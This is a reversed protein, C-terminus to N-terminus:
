KLLTNDLHMAKFINSLTETSKVKSNLHDAQKLSYGGSEHISRNMDALAENDGGRFKALETVSETLGQSMLVQLEPFTLTASQSEGTVQGTLMDRHKTDKAVSLKKVLVQVQRRLMLDLVMYKKPTLYEVGTTADTLWIREFFEHDLDKAMNLLRQTSLKIKDLNPSIITLTEEKSDLRDIFRKFEADSLSSLYTEYMAENESGPLFKGIQEIIFAQATNRNSM